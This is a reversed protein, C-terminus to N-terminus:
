LNLSISGLKKDGAGLIFLTLPRNSYVSDSVKFLLLGGQTPGESAVSNPIPYTELPALQRATWAFENVQRNLAIPRYVNGQTDVVEFSGTTVQPHETQNKAWLFVGYWLQTPGISPSVGAPLGKLYQSDEVGYQNLERSIQLQYTIPGADVYGGNNNADAADQGTAEGGAVHAHHNGCAAIGVALALACFAILIRRLTVAAPLRVAGM